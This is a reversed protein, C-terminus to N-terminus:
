LLALVGAVDCASMGGVVGPADAVVPRDVMIVPIGRMRAAVLKAATLAGGSNKTVLVCVRHEDMLAGEGDVTYPGRDGLLTHRPPLEGGPAEVTRILYHHRADASYAGVDKRGTTVFVSGAEAVSAAERAAAAVDAVHVWRDGPEAPWEPRRLTILRTGTEQAARAAHESVTAAFPHTADVLVDVAEERLHRALGGAGGFGGVRVAGAPEVPRATRGALSSVVECGDRGHLEAALARGEATGGLILVRV